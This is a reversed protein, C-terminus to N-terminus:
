RQYSLLTQLSMKIHFASYEIMKILVRAAAMEGM